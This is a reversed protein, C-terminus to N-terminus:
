SLFGVFERTLIHTSGQSQHVCSMPEKVLMELNLMIASVLEYGKELPCASVNQGELTIPVGSSVGDLILRIQIKM